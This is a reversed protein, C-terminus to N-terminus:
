WRCPAQWSLELRAMGGLRTFDAALPHVGAELRLEPGTQLRPTENPADAALVEKGDLALRFKGRLVVRFRYPGARLVHLYGAWRVTGGKPSLRPHPAEEPGYALALSPERQVIEVNGARADDRCTAILGPLLAEPDIPSQPTAARCTGTAAVILGLLGSWRAPM